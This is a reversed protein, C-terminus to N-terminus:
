GKVAGFTLGRILRQGMLLIVIVCPVLALMTAAALPGWLVVYESVLSYIAVPATKAKVGTLVVAFLLENWSFIFSLIGVTAIANTSVPLEIKLFAGWNGCGDVLAQERLEPPTDLFFGLMVWVIIPLNLAIHAIVLGAWTDYIHLFRFLLFFPLLAAVPPAMRTSLVWFSVTNRAKFRFRALIYAMPIGVALGIATSATGVVFSNIFFPVFGAGPIGTGPNTEGLASTLLYRYHELTPRFIFRPPVAVIDTAPKISMLFGWVLPSLWLIFVLGLLGRVIVVRWRHQGV